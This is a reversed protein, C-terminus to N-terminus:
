LRRIVSNFINSVASMQGDTINEYQELNDQIGRLTDYAFQFEQLDLMDDIFMGWHDHDESEPLELDYIDM